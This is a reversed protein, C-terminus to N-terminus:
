KPKEDGKQRNEMFWRNELKRLYIRDKADKLRFSARDDSEDLDGEKYFRQLQKVVAPDDALKKQAEKVVEDFKGGYDQVRMDVFQPDALHALLYDIRKNEIAKIVSGLTEKPTAQPYKELDASIGYRRPPQDDKTAQAWAGTLCVLCILSAIAV